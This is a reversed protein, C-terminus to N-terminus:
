CRPCAGASGYAWFRGPCGHCLVALSSLGSHSGLPGMGCVLECRCGPEGPLLPRLRPRSTPTPTSSTAATPATSNTNRLLPSSTLGPEVFFGVCDALWGPLFVVGTLALAWATAWALFILPRSLALRRLRCTSPVASIWALAQLLSGWATGVM